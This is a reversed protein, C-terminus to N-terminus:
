LITLNNEVEPFKKGLGTNTWNRDNTVHITSLLAAAKYKGEMACAKRRQHAMIERNKVKKKQLNSPVVKRNLRFTGFINIYCLIRCFKCVFPFKQRCILHFSRMFSYPMNQHKWFVMGILCNDKVSHSSWDLLKYNYHVAIISFLRIIYKIMHGAVTRHVRCYM